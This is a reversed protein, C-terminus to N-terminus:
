RVFEGPIVDAGSYTFTPGQQVDDSNLLVVSDGSNNLPMTPRFLQFENSGPSLVSGTPFVYINGARDRMSWGSIDLVGSGSYALVVRERGIDQGEPNPLANVIEVGNTGGPSTGGGSPGDDGISAFVALHDSGFRTSAAQAPEFADVLGGTVYLVDIAGTGPFDPVDDNGVFTSPVNQALARMRLGNVLGGALLAHTDDYGDTRDDELDMGNKGRDAIGVNVDGGFVVTYDPHAALLENTHQAVAAAVLERKEANEYDDPGSDGRSSKFHSVIVFLKLEPIEAVLFGRGVGVDAIGDLAVRELRREPVVGSDDLSRDFEVLNAMPFRSIIGVELDRSGSGFSSIATYFDERDMEQLLDDLDSQTQVETVLLIDFDVEALFGDINLDSADRDRLAVNWTAVTLPEDALHGDAFSSSPLLTLLASFTAVVFHRLSRRRIRYSMNVERLLFPNILHLYSAIIM